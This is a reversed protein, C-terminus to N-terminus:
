IVCPQKGKTICIGNEGAEIKAKSNEEVATVGDGNAIDKVLQWRADQNKGSSFM